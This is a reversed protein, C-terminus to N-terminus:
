SNGETGKEAVDFQLGSSGEGRGPEKRRGIWLHTSGDIWRAYQYTRTVRAGERPVEEEFLLLERNPELLRGKPRHVSQIGGEGFAPLAGRKLRLTTGDKVPLLPIWYDPVTTGLRYILPAGDSGAAPPSPQAALTEQYAEHRDLPRGSASEVVQEVAWAVNAMEDRLLSLDEVPQSELMPGLIPPLFFLQQNDNTLSFMRWPTSPGDVVNAHLILFREGFTNTVVLARIRSLTGVALELPLLFWDNSYELAFKVLLLRALDQPAAQISAFNVAGDEFEWFRASPMGRFSVPAPLFAETLSTRSETAGLGSGSSTTFSFWDLRGDLYEPATLVVEGAATKGSISLAYEMREPIWASPATGQQFLRDLWTLWTTLMGIVKPQDGAAIQDFPSERFLDNLTNGAQLVRLRAAVRLGDITRGSLVHIFSLSAADMQKAQEAAPAVLVYTSAFWQARTPGLRAAELLRLLHRGSEAALRWNPRSDDTVPEAEVLTELALNDAAYPMAPHPGSRPGPQYRTVAATDVIVQAAAPSGADAGNFEGFQWQRGLMWLPDHIRAQLGDQLDPNHTSLDLRIRSPM